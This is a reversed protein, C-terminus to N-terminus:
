FMRANCQEAKVFLFFVDGKMGDFIYMSSNVIQHICAIIAENQSYKGSGHKAKFM